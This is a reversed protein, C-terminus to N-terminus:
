ELLEGHTRAERKIILCRREHVLLQRARVTQAAKRVANLLSCRPVLPVFSHHLYTEEEESDNESRVESEKECAVLSASSWFSLDWIRSCCTWSSLAMTESTLSQIRMNGTGALSGSRISTMLSPSKKFMLGSSEAKSASCLSVLLADRLHPIMPRMLIMPPFSCYM